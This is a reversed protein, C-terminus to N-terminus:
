VKLDQNKRCILMSNTVWDKVMQDFVWDLVHWGALAFNLALYQNLPDKAFSDVKARFDALCDGASKM